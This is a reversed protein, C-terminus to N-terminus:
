KMGAQSLANMIRQFMEPDKYPLRYGLTTLSDKTFHKMIPALSSRAEDTKGMEAYAAAMFIRSPYFDPNISISAELAKICKDYRRILFFAHGLNFEYYVPHRPNLRIAEEIISIAEEPRGAWTLAEGLGSLAEVYNPNLSLAKEHAQIAEDHRKEWTLVSAKLCYAEGSSSNISIATQAKKMATELSQPDLSWGMAWDAFYTWGLRAVASAFRPDLTTAKEFNLRAQHNSEKTFRSQYELGRLYADYADMNATEKKLLREQEGATLKVALASVIKQSVEDQLDFIDEVDRDYRDAWIHGGSKVDILQANIRVKKGEKRVSGELIFRVGLDRGAEEINVPKGKYTFVSNRAIVKLESLKSLDTILDETFGDAFYEQSPDGSMNVFPLVAISPFSTSPSALRKKLIDIVRPTKESDTSRYRHIGGFILVLGLIVGMIVAANRRHRPDDKKRRFVTDGASVSDMLIRYARVPEAINKVKQQGLFEYGVPLKNKVQDYASGSICIGGTDALKEVRAAINVGDGYIQSGDQLVDGLNIGIRFTMRRNEPLIKNRVALDKQLDVACQVADVVSGFEALLNDGPSDIIRGRYREIFEAFVMRYEKLTEVTALENSGMLRSYGEVDATFIAALKRQYNGPEM